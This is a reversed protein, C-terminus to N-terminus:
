INKLCFLEMLLKGRLILVNREDKSVATLFLDNVESQLTFNGNESPYGRFWMQDESEHGRKPQEDVTNRGLFLTLCLGYQDKVYGKEGMPPVTWTSNGLITQIQM